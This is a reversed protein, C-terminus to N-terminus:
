KLLRLVNAVTEQVTEGPMNENVVALLETEPIEKYIEIYGRAKLSDLIQRIETIRDM